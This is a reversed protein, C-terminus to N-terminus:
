RECEQMRYKEIELDLTRATRFFSDLMLKLYGALDPIQSVLLFHKEAVKAKGKLSAPVTKAYSSLTIVNLDDEKEM